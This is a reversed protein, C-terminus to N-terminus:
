SMIIYNVKPKKSQQKKAPMEEQLIVQKYSYAMEECDFYDDLDIEQRAILRLYDYFSRVPKQNNEPTFGISQISSSSPEIPRDNLDLEPSDDVELELDDDEPEEITTIDKSKKIPQNSIEMEESVDSLEIENITTTKPYNEIVESDDIFDDSESEDDEIVIQKPQTRKPKPTTESKKPKEPMPGNILNQLYKTKEINHITPILNQFRRDLDSQSNQDLLADIQKQLSENLHNLDQLAIKQYRRWNYYDKEALKPKEKEHWNKIEKEIFADLKKKIEPRNDKFSMEIATASDLHELPVRRKKVVREDGNVAPRKKPNKNEDVVPKVTAKNKEEKSKEVKVPKKMKAKLSRKKQFTEEDVDLDVSASSEEETTVEILCGEANMDDGRPDISSGSDSYEYAEDNLDVSTEGSTEPQTDKESGNENRSVHRQFKIIMQDGDQEVKAKGVIKQQFRNYKANRKRESQELVFNATSVIDLKEQLTLNEFDDENSPSVSNPNDLKDHNNSPKNDSM